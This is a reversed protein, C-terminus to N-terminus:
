IPEKKLHPVKRLKELEYGQGQLLNLIFAYQEDSIAPERAMIWVYDRKTRGIVTTSYDESLYIIRYEAKFPWIFQMGWVANSQKDKVFGTPTYVKKEGNFGDQYFTFTTAITGDENLRYSEMANYAGTEIFTPISAIVYWDGMFRELDIATETKIPPYSSCSCLIMFVPLWSFRRTM